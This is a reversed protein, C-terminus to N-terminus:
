AHQAEPNSQQVRARERLAQEKMARLKPATRKRSAELMARIEPSNGAADRALMQAYEPMVDDKHEDIYAYAAEVQATTVSLLNAIWDTTHKGRYDLIDYVTIRTGKIEPGRGRHHIEAEM